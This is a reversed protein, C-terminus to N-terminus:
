KSSDAARMKCRSAPTAQASARSSTSRTGPSQQRRRGVFAIVEAVASLLGGSFLWGFREYPAVRGRTEGDADPHRDDDEAM